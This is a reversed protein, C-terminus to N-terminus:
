ADALEWFFAIAGDLGDSGGVPMATVELFRLRGDLARISLRGHAPRRARLAVSLPLSEQTITTGSQDAPLFATAWPFTALDEIEDLKKGLIRGAAENFYSLAGEPNVVFAPTDVRDAVEHLLQLGRRM